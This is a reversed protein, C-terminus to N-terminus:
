IQGSRIRAPIAFAVEVFLRLFKLHEQVPHGTASLEHVGDNGDIWLRKAWEAIDTTLDGKAALAAIRQARGGTQGGDLLKLCVDLVSRCGALVRGQNRGRAFDEELEMIVAAIDAPVEPPLVTAPSPSQRLVTVIKSFDEGKVPGNFAQADGFAIGKIASYENCEPCHALAHFVKFYTELTSKAHEPAIKAFRDFLNPLHDGVEALQPSRWGIPSQLQLRTNAL